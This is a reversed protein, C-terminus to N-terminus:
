TNPHRKGFTKMWYSVLTIADSTKLDFAAAVYPAAAFMNLTGSDRLNDLYTFIEEREGATGIEEATPKKIKM